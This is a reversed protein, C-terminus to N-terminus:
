LAEHPCGAAARSCQRFWWRGWRCAYMFWSSAVDVGRCPLVLVRVGMRMWRCRTCASGGALACAAFSSSKPAGADAGGSSTKPRVVQVCRLTPVICAVSLRARVLLAEGGAKATVPELALVVREELRDFTVSSKRQTFREVVTAEAEDSNFEFELMALAVTLRVQGEAQAADGHGSGRRAAAGLQQHQPADDRGYELVLKFTDPNGGFVRRTFM